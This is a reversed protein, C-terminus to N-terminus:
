RRAQQRSGAGQEAQAGAHMLLSEAGQAVAGAIRDGLLAVAGEPLEIHLAPVPKEGNGKVFLLPYDYKAFIGELREMVGVFGPTDFGRPSTFLSNISMELRKGLPMTGCSNRFQAIEEQMRRVGIGPLGSHSFARGIEASLASLTLGSVDQAYGGPLSVKYGEHNLFAAMSGAACVAASPNNNHIVRLAKGADVTIIADVKASRLEQRVANLCCGRDKGALKHVSAAAIGPKGNLTDIIPELRVMANGPRVCVGVSAKRSNTKVSM